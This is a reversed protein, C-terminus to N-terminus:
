IPECPQMREENKGGGGMRRGREGDGGQEGEGGWLYKTEQSCLAIPQTQRPAPAFLARSTAVCLATVDMLLNKVIPM